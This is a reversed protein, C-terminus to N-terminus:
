THNAVGSRIFSAQWMLVCCRLVHRASTIDTRIVALASMNCRNLNPLTCRHICQQWYREMHDWNEVQACHGNADM